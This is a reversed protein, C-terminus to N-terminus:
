EFIKSIKAETVRGIINFNDTKYLKKPPFYPNFSILEICNKYKIVKKITAEKNGILIVGIQGSKIDNQKHVVVIDNEYIIPQMSDGVAKLAFYNKLDSPPNDINIYNVINKPSLYNYNTKVIGLLPISHKTDYNYLPLKKDDNFLFDISVNLCNCIKKATGLRIDTVKGTLFSILTTYPIGAELALKHITHIDNKEMLPYLKELLEM